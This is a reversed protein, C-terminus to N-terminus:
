GDQRRKLYLAIVKCDPCTIGAVNTFSTTQHGTPQITALRLPKGCLAGGNLMGHCPPGELYASIAADYAGTYAFVKKALRFRTELSVGDRDCMETLVPFYDVPDILVTVGGHEEDGYNKAAARVMGPGGIDINEIAEALTCGPKAITKEFPYFNVVLLDIPEIGAVRIAEMHEPLDRRALLGGGIKPHITKVRGDLMEPFGTHDSVETVPINAAKLTKATGGTSLISVNSEDLVRALSIVGGKESVSILARRIPRSM